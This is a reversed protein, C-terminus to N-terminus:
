SITALGTGFAQESPTAFRAAEAEWNREYSAPLARGGYQSPGTIWGFGADFVQSRWDKDERVEELEEEFTKEALLGVKDNGEGWAMTEEQRPKANAELFAIAEARFQDETITDAAM